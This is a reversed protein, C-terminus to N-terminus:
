IPAPSPASVGPEVYDPYYSKPPNFYGFLAYTGAANADFCITFAGEENPVWGVTSAVKVWEGDVLQRIEGVWGFQGGRFAHCVQGTETIEVPSTLLQLWSPMPNEDFNVNTNAGASWDGLALSPNNAPIAEAKVANPVTTAFLMTIFLTVLIVRLVKKM